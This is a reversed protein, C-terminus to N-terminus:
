AFSAPRVESSSKLSGVRTLILFRRGQSIISSNRPIATEDTTPINSDTTATRGITIHKWDSTRSMAPLTPVCDSATVIRTSISSVKLALFFNDRRKLSIFIPKMLPALRPIM